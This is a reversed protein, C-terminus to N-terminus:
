RTPNFSQNSNSLRDNKLLFSKIFVTLRLNDIFRERIWVVMIRMNSLFHFRWNIQATISFVPVSGMNSGQYTKQNRPKIGWDGGKEM